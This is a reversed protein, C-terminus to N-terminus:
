KLLDKIQEIRATTDAPLNGEAQLAVFDATEAYDVMAIEKFDALDMDGDVRDWTLFAHNMKHAWAHCLIKAIRETYKPTKCHVSKFVQAKKAMEEAETGM